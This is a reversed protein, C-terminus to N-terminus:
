PIKGYVVETKLPTELLPKFAKEYVTLPCFVTRYEGFPIGTLVSLREKSFDTMRFGSANPHGGGGLYECIPRLNITRDETSRLSIRGSGDPPIVMVGDIEKFIGLLYHAVYNVMWYPAVVEIFKYITGNWPIASTPMRGFEVISTLERTLCRFPEIENALDRAAELLPDRSVSDDKDKYSVVIDHENLQFVYYKIKNREDLQDFLDIFGQYISSESQCTDIIYRLKVDILIALNFPDKIEEPNILWCDIRNIYEVYFTMRLHKKLDYTSFRSKPKEALYKMANEIVSMTLAASCRNIESYVLRYNEVTDSLLETFTVLSGVHHDIAIFSIDEQNSLLKKVAVTSAILDMMVFVIKKKKKRDYFISNKVTEYGIDLLEDAKARSLSGISLMQVYSVGADKLFKRMFIASCIGDPDHDHILCFVSDESAVDAILKYADNIDETKGNNKLHITM